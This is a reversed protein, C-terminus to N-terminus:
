AEEIVEPNGSGKTRVTHFLSTNQSQVGPLQLKIEMQHGVASPKNFTDLVEQLKASPKVFYDTVGQYVGVWFYPHNYNFVAQPLNFERKISHQQFLNSGITRTTQWMGNGGLSFAHKYGIEFDLGLTQGISFAEEQSVGTTSDFNFSYASTKNLRQSDILKYYYETISKTGKVWDEDKPVAWKGLIEGAKVDKTNKLYYKDNIKSFPKLDKDMFIAHQFITGPSGQPLWSGKSFDKMAIVDIYVYKDMNSEIITKEGILPLSTNPDRPSPIDKFYKGDVVEMQSSDKNEAAHSLVPSVLMSGSIIFVSALSAVAITHKLTKM